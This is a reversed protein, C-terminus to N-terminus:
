LASAPWITVMVVDHPPVIATLDGVFVSDMTRGKWLDRVHMPQLPNLGILSWTATITGNTTGRNVMAVVLKGGFLPGSWVELDETAFVKRAQVGLSDQNIAIVEKNSLIERAEESMKQLDCGILLPAKMMAWLSFHVRYESTTMGGNGVELMDPDNWGGPQAYKAWQNNADAIQLMSSWTDSIDFTTRWSDAVDFAWTAPDKLGWECMSYFIERGTNELADRMARYRKEIPLEGSFCNDYKLYDVEWEAFTAADIAENGLSAPRGECTFMGADSYIGLKLGKSHVYDALAKIGSPFAERSPMLRGQSLHGCCSAGSECPGTGNRLPCNGASATTTSSITWKGNRSHLLTLLRMGSPRLDAKVPSCAQTPTFALSSAKATFM